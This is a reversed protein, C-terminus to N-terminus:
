NNHQVKAGAEITKCGRSLKELLAVKCKAGDMKIYIRVLKGMEASWLAVLM